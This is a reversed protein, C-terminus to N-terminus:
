PPTTVTIIPESEEITINAVDLYSKTNFVKRIKTHYPKYANIYDVLVQENNDNYVAPTISGDSVLKLQIFSSKIIWDVNRQEKLIYKVLEFWLDTYYSEYLGTFINEEIIKYLIEFAVEPGSDFTTSDFIDVDYGNEERTDWLIDLLEITGNQKYTKKWQYQNAIKIAEYIAIDGLGDDLVKVIKGQTPPILELDEKRLLTTTFTKTQYDDSFWESYQWYATLDYNFQGVSYNTFKFYNNNTNWFSLNDIVNLNKILKNFKNVYVRRAQIRDKIWSQNPLIKNGYKALINAFKQPIEQKDILGIIASHAISSELQGLYSSFIDQNVIIDDLKEVNYIPDWINTLFVKHEDLVVAYSDNAGNNDWDYNPASTWPYYIDPTSSLVLGQNINIQGPYMPNQDLGFSKLTKYYNVGYKVIQRPSFTFNTFSPVTTFNNALKYTNQATNPYIYNIDQVEGITDVLTYYENINVLERYGFMSQKMKLKFLEPVFSTNDNERITFWEAHQYDNTLNLNVQVVTDESIIDKINSLIIENDSIPACWRIGRSTPNNIISSIEAVSINRNPLSPVTTKDKIWFYYFEKYTRSASDFELNSSYYYYTDIGYEVSYPTGSIKETEFVEGIHLSYESPHYPSKTWEYVDISSTSFQKGWYKKRYTSPGQEYNYYRVTDLNWWTKGIFENNWSSKTNLNIDPDNTENYSAPDYWSKFDLEKDAIGPIIGKFPDYVELEILIQNKKKNYLVVNDIANNDVQQPHTREIIQNVTGDPFANFGYGNKVADYYDDSGYLLWLQMGTLRNYKYVEWNGSVGSDVYALNGDRWYYSNDNATAQLDTLTKFRTPKFVFLKCDYEKEEIFEEIYIMTDAFSKGSEDVGEPFGYVRHVGNINKNNVAGNILVYDGIALTHDVEFKVMALDGAENGACIEKIYSRTKPPDTDVGEYAVIDTIKDTVQYSTSDEYDMLQLVNFGFRNYDSLWVSFLSDEPQALWYDDDYYIGEEEGDGLFEFRKPNPATVTVNQLDSLETTITPFIVATYTDTTEEILEMFTYIQEIGSFVFTSGILPITKNFKNLTISDGSQVGGAVTTTFEAQAPVYRQAKYLAGKWRVLEDERYAISPDWNPISFLSLNNLDINLLNEPSRIEFLSDGVMPYGANPLDAKYQTYFINNDKFDLYPRTRFISDNFEYDNPLVLLSFGFLPDALKDSITIFLRQPANYPVKFILKNGSYTVNETYNTIVSSSGTGTISAIKFTVNNAAFYNALETMPTLTYTHGQLLVYHSINLNNDIVLRPIVQDNQITKELYNLKLENNLIPSYEPKWVWKSDTSFIVINDNSESDRALDYQKVFSVTQPNTKVLSSPMEFELTQQGEVDGFEGLRFLSEDKIDIQFNSNKLFLDKNRLLKTFVNKTGKDHIAGLYFEYSLDDDIDLNQLFEPKTFGTNYRSTKQLQQNSIGTEINNYQSFNEASSEYNEVITDNKVIFGEARPKGYWNKTRKGIIKVRPKKIGLLNSTLIDNFKTVNNVLLIHEINKVYLQIGYLNEKCIISTQNDERIIELKSNPISKNDKNIVQPSEVLRQNKFDVFGSNLSLLIKNSNQQIYFEDNTERVIDKAWIVFQKGLTRWTLVEQLEDAIVGQLELHKGYQILFNYVEQIGNLITDYKVISTTNDFRKPEQIFIAPAVEVSLTDTAPSSNQIIFEKLIPNFGSIKYGRSVKIIKISSVFFSKVSNSKYLNLRYDEEPIFNSKDQNLLTDFKLKILNKKSFGALKILSAVDLNKYIINLSTSNIKKFKLFELCYQNIGLVSAHYDSVNHLTQNAQYERLLTNSYMSQDNLTNSRPQLNNAVWFNSYFQIPFTTYSAEAYDFVFDSTNRYAMEQYSIDNFKWDMRIDKETLSDIQATTFFQADVPNRLEGSVSVLNQIQTTIDTRILDKRQGVGLQPNGSYGYILANILNSRKIDDGGNATDKWSYVNDWWIPKSGHGLCEWPTRHPTSSGLYYRYLGKYNGPVGLKSYNWTFPNTIDFDENPLNLIGQSFLFKNFNKNLNGPNFNTNKFHYNEPDLVSSWTTTKKYINNYIRKEFELICDYFLIPLLDNVIVRSGDHGIIMRNSTTSINYTDTNTTYGFSKGVANLYYYDVASEEQNNDLTEYQPVFAPTIGFKTPTPACFSFSDKSTGIIRIETGVSYQLNLKVFNPEDVINGNSDTLYYDIEKILQRYQGTNEYVYVYVHQNEETITNDLSLLTQNISLEVKNQKFGNYYIMSSNYFVNDSNKGLNIRELVQNVIDFPDTSNTNNLINSLTKVFNNKYNRYQNKAFRISNIIDIDNNAFNILADAGNASFQYISGGLDDTNVVNYSNNVGFGSGEFLPNNSIKKHTHTFFQNYTVSTLEQNKWNHNLIFPEDFLTGDNDDYTIYTCNFVDNFKLGNDPLNFASSQRYTISGNNSLEYIKEESDYYPFVITTSNEYYYDKLKDIVEQQSGPVQLINNKYVKVSGPMKYPDVVFIKGTNNGVKWILIQESNVNITLTGQYINNNTVGTSLLNGDQGLIQLTLNQIYDEDVYDDLIYNFTYPDISVLINTDIGTPIYLNSNKEQIDLFKKGQQVYSFSVYQNPNFWDAFSLSLQITNGYGLKDTPLNIKLDTGVEEYVQNITKTTQEKVYTKKWSNNYVLNQNITQQLKTYYYGLINVNVNNEVYQIRNQQTYAFKIYGTNNINFDSSDSQEYDLSYGLYPDILNSTGIEYQFITTGAFNNDTYSNLQNGQNDYLNFLINQNSFNKLQTNVWQYGDYYFEQVINNNQQTFLIVDNTNYTIETLTNPSGTNFRYIKFNYVSSVGILIIIDGDNLVTSVSPTYSGDINRSQKNITGDNIIQNPTKFVSWHDVFTLFNSGAQYMELRSDLEIIPRQSQINKFDQSLDYKSAWSSTDSVPIGAITSAIKKYFINDVYVWHDEPYVTSNDFVLQNKYVNIVDTHVWFNTRSWANRNKAGIEMCIFQAPFVNQEASSVFLSQKDDSTYPIFEIYEGVGKVTYIVGSQFNDGRLNVTSVSGTNTTFKFCMGNKIDIGNITASIKGVVVSLDVSNVNIYIPDDIWFYSFYNTFKDLNFPPSFTYSQVDLQTNWNNTSADLNELSLKLDDLTLTSYINEEDYSVPSGSFQYKNRLDNDELYRDQSPDYYGGQKKGVYGNIQELSGKSTLNDLTTSIIQKNSDTQLVEPLLKVNSFKKNPKEFPITKNDIKKAKAPIKAM